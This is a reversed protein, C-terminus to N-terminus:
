KKAKKRTTRVGDAVGQENRTADILASVAWLSTGIAEDVGLGQRDNLEVLALSGSVLLLLSILRRGHASAPAIGFQEVYDALQARSQDLRFRRMERGAESVIQHRLLPMNRAFDNWMARQFAALQDDGPHPPAPPAALARRSPEAAAATLLEDKTPFHRYITALSVGSRKAVAPVSMEDLSGEAVLELVAGLVKNRTLERQEDRLGVLSDECVSVIM